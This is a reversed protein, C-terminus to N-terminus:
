LFPTFGLPLTPMAPGGCHHLVRIPGPRASRASLQQPAIAAGRGLMTGLAPAVARTSVRLQLTTGAPPPPWVLSQSPWHGRGPSRSANCPTNQPQAFCGARPQTADSPAWPVDWPAANNQEHASLLLRRIGAPQRRLSPSQRCSLSLPKAALCLHRPNDRQTPCPAVPGFWGRCLRTCRMAGEGLLPAAAGTSRVELGLKAKHGNGEVGVGRM